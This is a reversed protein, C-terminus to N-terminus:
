SKVIKEINMRFETLRTVHLLDNEINDFTVNFFCYSVEISRDYIM